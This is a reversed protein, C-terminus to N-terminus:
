SSARRTATREVFVKRAAELGNLAAPFGAYLAVQILLEVVETEGCGVNLAGHLHVELQPRANGLAALMAVTGIERSRLSLGPRSYVDGFGFEIVYRALDPALDALGEVVRTGAEGDVEQLRAWGRRFRELTTEGRAELQQEMRRMVANVAM